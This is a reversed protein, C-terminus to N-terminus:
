WYKRDLARLQVAEAVHVATIAESGALDAVTRAVRLIRDYGRASLGIKEMARQMIAKGAEDLVCMEWTPGFPLHVSLVEIGNERLSAAKEEFTAKVTAPDFDIKVGCTGFEVFRIGNDRLDKVFEPTMRECPVSRALTLQYM